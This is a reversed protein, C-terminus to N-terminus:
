VRMGGAQEAAAVQTSPILHVLGTQPNRMPVVGGGGLTNLSSTSGSRQQADTPPPPIVQNQGAGPLPNGKADKAGQAVVTSPAPADTPIQVEPLGLGYNLANLSSYGSQRYPGQDARQQEYIQKAQALAAADSAAQTKAAETNGHAELVSGAVTAGGKIIDPLAAKLAGAFGGGAAVTGGGGSGAGGAGAAAGSGGAAALGLGIGAPAMSLLSLATAHRNMFADQGIQGDFGIGYGKPLQGAYKQNLAQLHAFAPSNQWVGGSANMQQIEAMVAQYDPDAALQRQLASTDAKAM